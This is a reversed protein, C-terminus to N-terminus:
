VRLHLALSARAPSELDELNELTFKDETIKDNKMKQIMVKWDDLDIRSKPDGRLSKFIWLLLDFHSLSEVFSQREKLNEVPIFLLKISLEAPFMLFLVTVIKM